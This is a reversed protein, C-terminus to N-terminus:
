RYLIASIDITSRVISSAVYHNIKQVLLWTLGFVTIELGIMVVYDGIIYLKIHTIHLNYIVKYTQLQQSKECKQGDCACM